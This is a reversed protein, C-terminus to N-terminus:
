RPAGCHPCFKFDPDLSRGCQGCTPAPYLDRVTPGPRAPVYARRCNECWLVTEGKKVRLLPVFFLSLYQDHRLRYASRAGCQPCTRAQGDLRKRKPQVGAILFM